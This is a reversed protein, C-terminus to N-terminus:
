ANLAGASLSDFENLLEAGSLVFGGGFVACGGGGGNLARPGLRDTGAIAIAAVRVGVVGVANAGVMAGTDSALDKSGGVVGVAGM